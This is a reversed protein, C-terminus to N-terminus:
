LGSGSLVIVLREFLNLVGPTDVLSQITIDCNVVSILLCWCVSLTTNVQPPMPYGAPVGQHQQLYQQYMVQQTQEPTMGPYQPMGAGNRPM